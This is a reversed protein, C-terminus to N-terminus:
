SWGDPLVVPGGLEVLIPFEIEDKWAGQIIARYIYIGPDSPATVNFIATAGISMSDKNKQVIVTKEAISANTYEGRLPREYLKFTFSYTNSGVYPEWLGVGVSVNFEYRVGLWLGKEIYVGAQGMGAQISRGIFVSRAFKDSSKIPEFYIRAYLYINLVISTALLVLLSILIKKQNSFLINHKM